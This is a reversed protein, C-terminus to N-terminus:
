SFACLREVRDRCILRGSCCHPPSPPREGFEYQTSGAAARVARGEWCLETEEDDETSVGCLGGKATGCMLTRFPTVGM